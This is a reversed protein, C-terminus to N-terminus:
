VTAGQPAELLRKLNELARVEGAMAKSVMPAMLRKPGGLDARLTFRVRTGDGAPALEYRGTPRVPGSTTRFAILSEPEHETVEIDAAIRRGGPGKVVQHYRAGVGTGSLRKIELVGERWKPDNEADALFAFVEGIPRDIVTENSAEPM